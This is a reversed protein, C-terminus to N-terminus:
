RGPRVRARMGAAIVAGGVVTVLGGVRQLLWWERKPGTVAEFLRRSLFPLAGTAVYYGGQALLVRRLDDDDRARFIM